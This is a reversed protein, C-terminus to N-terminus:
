RATELLNLFTATVTLCAALFVWLVLSEQRSLKLIKKGVILFAVISFVIHIVITLFIAQGGSVKVLFGFLVFGVVLCFGAVVANTLGLIITPGAYKKDYFYVPVACLVGHLFLGFLIYPLLIIGV